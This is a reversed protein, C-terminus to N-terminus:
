KISISKSEIPSKVTKGIMVTLIGDLYTAEIKEVDANEPLSFKRTFSNLKFQKLSYTQKSEDKIEELSVSVVLNNKEIEIKFQDKKYGPVSLEINFGNELEFINTKPSFNDIKSITNELLESGFFNDMLNSYIPTQHKFKLHTM